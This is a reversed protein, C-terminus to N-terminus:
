KVSFFGSDLGGCGCLAQITDPYHGSLPWTVWQRYMLDSKNDKLYFPLTREANLTPQIKQGGVRSILRSTQLVNDSPEWLTLEIGVNQSRELFTKGWINIRIHNNNVKMNAQTIM